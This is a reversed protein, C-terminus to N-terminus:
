KLLRAQTAELQPTWAGIEKFYRIAGPHFPIAPHALSQAVSWQRAAAHYTAFEKPHGLVAKIIKYVEDDPLDARTVLTTSLGFVYAAKDQGPFSNAPLTAPYFADPLLKMMADRQTMPLDLFRVVNDQFLSTLLPQRLAAPYVAGDVTGARLEQVVQGTDVTGVIRIKNRPLNEVRILADTVMALEPLARRQGIITKGVLDAVTKIGAAPRVLIVRFNPQGQAILRIPYPEKFPAKGRFRDVMSLSNAMALDVRKAALAFLNPYSGGVPQVTVNINGYKGILKSMAVSIVYFVSGISSTGFNLAKQASAPDSFCLMAVAVAATARYHGRM